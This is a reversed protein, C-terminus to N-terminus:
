NCDFPLLDSAMSSECRWNGSGAYTWEIWEIRAAFLVDSSLSLRVTVTCEPAAGGLQRLQEAVLFRHAENCVVVVSRGKFNGM